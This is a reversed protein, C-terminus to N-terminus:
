HNESFALSTGDLGKFPEGIYRLLLMYQDNFWFLLFGIASLLILLVMYWNPIFVVATNQPLESSGTFVGKSGLADFRDCAGSFPQLASVMSTALGLNSSNQSYYLLSQSKLTVTYHHANTLFM